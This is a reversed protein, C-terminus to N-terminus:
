SSSIPHVPARGMVHDCFVISAPLKEGTVPDTKHTKLWDEIAEREFTQGLITQVPDRMLELTIPCCLEDPADVVCPSPAETWPMRPTAVTWPLAPSALIKQIERNCLCLM